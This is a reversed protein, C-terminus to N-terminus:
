VTVNGSTNQRANKRGYLRIAPVLFALGAATLELLGGSFYLVDLGFTDIVWGALAQCPPTSGMSILAMVSGVRGMLEPPIITQNVSSSFVQISTSALGCVVLLAAAYWHNLTFITLFIAVGQVFFAILTMRPTPNKIAILTIVVAGILGGIGWGASMQGLGAAGVGFKEALFPLGVSVGNAGANAFFSVIIMTLIIPTKGVYRIGELFDAKFSRKQKGAPSAAASEQPQLKVFALTGASIIFSLANLVLGLHYGGMAFIMAGALPGIIGAVQMSGILVSNSQTYHEKTVIRQRIVGAAPWYFADVLGFIVAM